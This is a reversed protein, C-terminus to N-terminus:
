HWQKTWHAYYTKAATVVLTNDIQTGGSADTFWGDFLCDDKTTNPLTGIAVNEEKSVTTGGTGGRADFTIDYMIPNVTVTVTKTVHSGTGEITITTSGKGKGTVEGN